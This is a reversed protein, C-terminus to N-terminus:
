GRACKESMLQTRQADNEAAAKGLATRVGTDVGHAFMNSSQPANFDFIGM